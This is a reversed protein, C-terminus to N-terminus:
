VYILCFICVKLEIIYYYIGILNIGRCIVFAFIRECQASSGNNHQCDLLTEESGNCQVSHIVSTIRRSYYYKTSATSGTHMCTHFVSIVDMFKLLMGYQSYGLEKCAVGAAINDWFMDGCVLGWM